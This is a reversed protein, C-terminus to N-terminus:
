PQVAKAPVFSLGESCYVKGATDVALIRYDEASLHQSLAATGGLYIHTSLFDAMLGNECFVSVSALDSQSPAGTQLDLIHCYEREGIILPRAYSGSTGIMTVAQASGHTLTVTGFVGGDAPDTIQVTFPQHDPKQGYLLVASSASIVGYDADSERLQAALVDMAYGKAVAGLDLGFGEPVSLIREAELAIRTDDVLAMAALIDSSSPLASAAEAQEWLATLPRCSLQVASGFRKQLIATERILRPLTDETCVVRGETQLRGVTSEATHCDLQQSLATLTGICQQMLAADGNTDLTLTVVTDMAATTQQYIGNGQADGCGFLVGTLLPFIIAFFVKKKISVM